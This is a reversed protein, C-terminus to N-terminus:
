GAQHRRLLDLCGPGGPHPMVERLAASHGTIRKRVTAVAQAPGLGACLDPLKGV